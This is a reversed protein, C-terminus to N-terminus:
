AGPGGGGDIRKGGTGCSELVVVAEEGGDDEEGVTSLRKMTRSRCRWSLLTRAATGMKVFSSDYTLEASMLGITAYIFELSVYMGIFQLTILRM